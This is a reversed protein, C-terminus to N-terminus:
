LDIRRWREKLSMKKSAIFLALILSIVLYYAFSNILESFVMSVSYLDVNEINGIAIMQHVIKEEIEYKNLQGFLKNIIGSLGGAIEIQFNYALQRFEADSKYLILTLLYVPLNSIYGVTFCFKFREGYDLSETEKERLRYMGVIM